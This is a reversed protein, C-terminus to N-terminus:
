KSTTKEKQRRGAEKVLYRERMIFRYRNYEFLNEKPTIHTNQVLFINRCLLLVIIFISCIRHRVYINQRGNSWRMLSLSFFASAFIIISLSRTKIKQMKKQVIYASM